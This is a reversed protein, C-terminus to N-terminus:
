VTINKPQVVNAVTMKQTSSITRIIDDTSSTETVTVTPQDLMPLDTAPQRKRFSLSPRAVFDRRRVYDLNLGSTISPLADPMLTMASSPRRENYKWTVESKSKGQLLRAEYDDPHMPGDQQTLTNNVSNHAHINSPEAEGSNPGSAVVTITKFSTVTAAACNPCYPATPSQVASSSSSSAPVGTHSSLTTGVSSDFPTYTSQVHVSPAINTASSDPMLTVPSRSSNKETGPVSTIITSKHSAGPTPSSMESTSMTSTPYDHAQSSATHCHPCTPTPWHCSETTFVYSTSDDAPTLNAPPCITTTTTTTSTSTATSVGPVTSSDSTLDESNCTFDCITTTSGGVTETLSQSLTSTVM